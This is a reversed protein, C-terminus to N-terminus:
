EANAELPFFFFRFGFIINFWLLVGSSWGTNSGSVLLGVIRQSAGGNTQNHKTDLCSCLFLTLLWFRIIKCKMNWIKNCLSILKFHSRRSKIPNVFLYHGLYGCHSIYEKMNYLEQVIPGHYVCICLQTFQVHDRLMSVIYKQTMSHSNLYILSVSQVTSVTEKNM